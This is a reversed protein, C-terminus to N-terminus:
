DKKVFMAEPCVVLSEGPLVFSSRVYEIKNPDEIPLQIFAFDDLEVAWSSDKPIGYDEINPSMGIRVTGFNITKKRSEHAYVELNGLCLAPLYYLCKKSHEPDPCRCNGHKHPGSLDVNQNLRVVFRDYTARIEPVWKTETESQSSLLNKFDDISLKADLFIVGVVDCDDNSITGDNKLKYM